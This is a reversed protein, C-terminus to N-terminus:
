SFLGLKAGRAPPGRRADQCEACEAGSAIDMTVGHVTCTWTGNELDLVAEVQEETSRREITLTM